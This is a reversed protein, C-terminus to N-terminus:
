SVLELASVAYSLLILIISDPMGADGLEYSTEAHAAYCISVSYTHPGSYRFMIPKVYECREGSPLRQGFSRDVVVRVCM